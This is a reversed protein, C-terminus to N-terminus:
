KQSWTYNHRSKNGCLLAYRLNRVWRWMMPWPVGFAPLKVGLAKATRSWALSLPVSVAPVMGVLVCAYLANPLSFVVGTVTAAIWIWLLLTGIGFMRGGKAALMRATFCHNLRMDRLAKCPNHFSVEVRSNGTLAVGCNQKTAIQSIFLDDDGNHLTLSRSFGKADFFLARKYGLNFGIGRYPKGEIASTLWEAATAVEDFRDALRTLGNIGAFGLVVDKGGAFPATMDRLWRDSLVSCRASTIMVYPQHAAKVGLSIGLKKRSLNRAEVPVFTQYLNKHTALHNKVVDAVEASSGDNVVIVEFAGAYQQSFLRPLLSALASANDDAYVIVSVGPRTEAGADTRGTEDAGDLRDAYRACVLVHNRYVTLLLTGCVVALGLCVWVVAPVNYISFYIEAMIMRFSVGDTQIHAM